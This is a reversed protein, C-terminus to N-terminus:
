GVLADRCKAFCLVWWPISPCSMHIPSSRGGMYLIASKKQCSMGSPWPVWYGLKHRPQYKSLLLYGVLVPPSWKLLLYALDGWRTWPNIELTHFSKHAHSSLSISNNTQVLTTWLLPSSSYALLGKYTTKCSTITKKKHKYSPM